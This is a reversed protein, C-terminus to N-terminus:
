GAQEEAGKFFDLVAEFSSELILNSGHTARLKRFRRRAEEFDKLVMGHDTMLEHAHSEALGHPVYRKKGSFDKLMAQLISSCLKHQKFSDSEQTLSNHNLIYPAKNIEVPRETSKSLAPNMPKKRGRHKSGWAAAKIRAEEKGRGACREIWYHEDAIAYFNVKQLKSSPLFNKEVHLIGKAVLTKEIRRLTSESWFPFFDELWVSRSNYLWTMGSSFEVTRTAQIELPTYRKADILTCLKQLFGAQEFGLEVALDAQIVLFFSSM